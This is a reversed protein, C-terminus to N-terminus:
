GLINLLLGIVFVPVGLAYKEDELLFGGAITIAIGVAYVLMTLLLATM